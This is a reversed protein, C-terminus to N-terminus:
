GHDVSWLRLIRAEPDTKSPIQDSVMKWGQTQALEIEATLGRGKPFLGVAGRDIYPKVHDLLRPLPAFARASVGDVHHPALAEARAPWIRVPVKMAETAQRLFAAKKGVSEVLLIDAGARDALLAAIMLGPFGAGSGFDVWRRATEPILAFLQVSDAIHRRWLHDREKPGILNMAPRALDLAGVFAVLRAMTERSVDYEQALEDPGYGDLDPRDPAIDIM